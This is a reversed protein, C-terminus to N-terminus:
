RELDSAPLSGLMSSLMQVRSRCRSTIRRAIILFSIRTVKVYSMKM